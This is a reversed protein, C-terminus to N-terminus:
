TKVRPRQIKPSLLFAIGISSAVLCALSVITPVPLPGYTIGDLRVSEILIRGASYAGLYICSLLGPRGLSMKALGFYLCVFLALDWISEYLFAPQFCDYQMYARPRYAWPVLQQLLAYHSLPAGATESNFLNGWRWISQALPLCICVLDFYAVARGPHLRAYLLIAVFLGAICGHISLGGL